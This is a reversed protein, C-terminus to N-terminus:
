KDKEQEPREDKCGREKETCDEVEGPERLGVDITLKIKLEFGRNSGNTSQRVRKNIEEEETEEQNRVTAEQTLDVISGINLERSTAADKKNGTIKLQGQWLHFYV